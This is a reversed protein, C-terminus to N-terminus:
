LLVFIEAWGNYGYRPAGARTGNLEERNNIVAMDHGDRALTGIMGRALDNMNGQRFKVGLRALGEGAFESDMLTNLAQTYNMQNPGARDNGEMQARKASVAYMFNANTLMSPSDGIFRAAAAAERLESKSLNLEFGDRMVVHYGGSNETVSKYVDTPKEGYKQMAAKIAAITVCNGTGRSQSFGSWVNDPKKGPDSNDPRYDSHNAGETLPLNSM